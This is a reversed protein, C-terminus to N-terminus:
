SLSITLHVSGSGETLIGQYLPQIPPPNAHLMFMLSYMPQEIARGRRGQRPQTTIDGAM